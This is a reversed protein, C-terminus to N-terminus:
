KVQEMQQKVIENVDKAMFAKDKNESYWKNMFEELKKGDAKDWAAQSDKIAQEPSYKSGSIIAKVFLDGKEKLITTNILNLDASYVPMHDGLTIGPYERKSDFYVKQIDRYMDMGAKQEPVEPNFGSLVFTCKDVGSSFFMTYDGAYGVENKSKAPDIAQPCGNAAKKWHTGEDGNIIKLANESKMMFNLYQGVAEPNKAKANIVTTMQIPNDIAGTFTGMPSKPYALPAVEAGPVNKKLTAYDNMVFDYWGGTFKVYIGIKGNLFDQKAKAGDKDNIYDKDILGEDYLRKKFTLSALEKDWARVVKGDKIDWALLTSSSSEGFIENIAQESYTSMNLGYTDKKGNGDPDQDAFAKAVTLLEDTTTPMALNLKKLWDTRILLIHAPTAEKVKGIEYIKGDPKTGAKKLQPYQTLLKQYEPMSPLVNDIPMLQKQDYLSGRFPTNYENIIDPASGSAFLVNLKKTSDSRLVPVFRVNAPGNQNIWKTWRNDEYNGESAPVAGRDYMTVTIDGRKAPAAPTPTTTAAAPKNGAAGDTSNAQAGEKNDSSCGALATGLAVVGLTMGMWLKRNM